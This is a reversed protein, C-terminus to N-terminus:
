GEGSYFLAERYAEYALDRLKLALNWEENGKASYDSKAYVMSLVKEANHYNCELLDIIQEM